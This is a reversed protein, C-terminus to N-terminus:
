RSTAKATACDLAQRVFRLLERSSTPKQLLRVGSLAPVAGLDGAAYGSMLVLPLGPREDLLREALERGCPAGPMVVDSIVLAIEACHRRWVTMAEAGNTAVHVRYGARQLERHFLSRVSPDDEVLLVCETGGSAPRSTSAGEADGQTSAVPFFVRFTTGEGLASEVEIFGGHQQVIGFVTALGLGTGRGVEKTTFFPEFIRARHQPDIGTGEDRVSLCVYRGPACTAGAAAIRDAEIAVAGVDIDLTGGQPMADRANVALNVVILEVMSRDACVHAAGAARPTRLSVQEGIMRRLMRTLDSVVVTLDLREMRPVHCRSFTLLQRTLTAARSAADEADALASSTEPDEIRARADSVNGLIVTLLNNFDHAVGAALQGFAEMKQAQRFAAELGKHATIDEKVAVYGTCAGNASNVPFIGVREWFLEGSKKRNCLEGHWAGGARLTAWMGAYVEPSMQGSKLIRPNKGLVEDKTYGSVESFRANVHEIRGDAGTIIIAVPSQETAFWLTRMADGDLRQRTTDRGVAIVGTVRHSADLIPSFRVHCYTLESHPEPLILEMEAPAGTEVVERLRADYEVFGGGPHGEPATHGLADVQSRGLARAMVPNVYTRRGDRDYVAVHDPLHDLIERCRQADRPPAPAPERALLRSLSALLPQYPAFGSEDDVALAFVGRGAVAFRRIGGENVLVCADGPAGKCGHCASAWVRGSEAPRADFCVKAGNVGPLESLAGQLEGLGEGASLEGKREIVQLLREVLAGDLADHATPLSGLTRESSTSHASM